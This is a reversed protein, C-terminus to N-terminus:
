EDEYEDKEELKYCKEYNNDLCEKKNIFNNAFDIFGEKLGKLLGCTGPVAAGLGLLWMPIALPPCFFVTANAAIILGASTYNFEKYADAVKTLPLGLDRILDPDKFKKIFKSDILRQHSLVEKGNKDSFTKKEYTCEYLVYESEYIHSADLIPKELLKKEKFISKNLSHYLPKYNKTTELIHILNSIEKDEKKDVKVDIDFFEKKIDGFNIRKIGKKIEADKILEEFKSSLTQIKNKKVEELNQKPSCFCHSFFITVYSWFNPLPILGIIKKLAKRHYEHFKDERFDLIIVIGKIDYSSCTLFENIYQFNIKDQNSGKTDNFGPTDIVTYNFNQFYCKYSNAKITHSDANTGIEISKDESLVRCLTSKGAGTLGLIIYSNNNCDNLM